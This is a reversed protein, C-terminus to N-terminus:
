VEEPINFFEELRTNKEETTYGDYCPDSKPLWSPVMDMPIHWGVQTDNQHYLNTWVVAWEEGNMDDEDPWWGCPFGQGFRVSIFGLALLNRDRYVDSKDKPESDTEAM